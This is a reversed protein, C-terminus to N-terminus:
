IKPAPARVFVFPQRNPESRYGVYDDTVGSFLGIAERQPGSVGPRRGAHVGSAIEDLLIREVMAVDDDGLYGGDSPGALRGDVFLANGPRMRRNHDLWGGVGADDRVTDTSSGSAYVRVCYHDPMAFVGMSVISYPAACGPDVLCDDLGDFSPFHTLAL